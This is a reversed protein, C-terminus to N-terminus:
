ALAARGNTIFGHWRCGSTLLVSHSRGESPVFTLDDLSTGIPTWRGPGPMEDDPVRGVFWCMVLHTGVPGANDAFCKPCMFRLGDAEALTDVERHHRDDIRWVFVAELERLSYSM